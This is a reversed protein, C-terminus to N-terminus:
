WSREIELRRGDILQSLQRHNTVQKCHSM